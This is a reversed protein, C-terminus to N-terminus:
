PRGPLCRGLANMAAAGEGRTFATGARRGPQKLGCAIRSEKALASGPPELGPDFTKGDFTTLRLERTERCGCTTCDLSVKTWYMGVNNVYWATVSSMEGSRVQYGQIQVGQYPARFGSLAQAGEPAVVSPFFLDQTNGHGGGLSDGQDLRIGDKRAYRLIRTWATDPFRETGPTATGSLHPVRERAFVSDREEVLIITSDGKRQQSLVRLRVTEKYRISFQYMGAEFGEPPEAFGMGQYVWTRGPAFPSYDACLPACCAALM